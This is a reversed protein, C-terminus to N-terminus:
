RQGRRASAPTSRRRHRAASAQDATRRPAAAASVRHCSRITCDSNQPTACDSVDSRAAPSSVSIMADCHTGNPGTRDDRTPHSSLVPRSGLPRRSSCSTTIRASLGHTARLPSQDADDRGARYQHLPRTCMSSGSPVVHIGVAEHNRDTHAPAALVYGSHSVLWRARSRAALQATGLALDAEGVM